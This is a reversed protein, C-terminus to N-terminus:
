CIGHDGGGEREGRGEDRVRAEAEVEGGGGRAGVHAHVEELVQGGGGRRVAADAGLSPLLELLHPWFRGQAASGYGRGVVGDAGGARAAVEGGRM